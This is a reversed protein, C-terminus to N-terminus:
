ASFVGEVIKLQSIVYIVAIAILGVILWKFLSSAESAVGTVASITSSTAGAIGKATSSAIAQAAALPSLLASESADIFAAAGSSSPQGPLTQAAVAQASNAAGGQGFWGEVTSTAAGVATAWATPSFLSPISVDVVTPQIANGDMTQTM